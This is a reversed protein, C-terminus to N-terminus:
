DGVWYPKWDLGIMGGFTSRPNHEYVHGNAGVYCIWRHTETASVWGEVQFVACGLLKARVLNMMDRADDDCDWFEKTYPWPPKWTNTIDRVERFTYLKYSEDALQDDKLQITIDSFHDALRELVQDASVVMGDSKQLVPMEYARIIARALRILLQKM